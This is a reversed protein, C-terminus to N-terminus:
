VLIMLLLWGAILLLAGTDSLTAEAAASVLATAVPQQTANSTTTSATVNALFAALATRYM